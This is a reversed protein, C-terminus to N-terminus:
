PTPLAIGLGRPLTHHIPDLRLFDFAVADPTAPAPHRRSLHARAPVGEREEVGTVLEPPRTKVESIPLTRAPPM